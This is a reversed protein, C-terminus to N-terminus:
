KKSKPKEPKAPKKSSGSSAPSNRGGPVVVGQEAMFQQKKVQLQQPTLGQKSYFKEWYDWKEQPTKAAWTSKSDDNGGKLVDKHNNSSVKAKKADHMLMTFADVWVHAGKRRGAKGDVKLELVSSSKGDRYALCWEDGKRGPYVKTVKILKAFGQPDNPKREAQKDNDWWCFLWKANKSKAPTEDDSDDPVPMNVVKFYKEKPGGLGGGGKKFLDGTCVKALVNMKALGTLNKTGEPVVDCVAEYLQPQQMEDLGELIPDEQEGDVGCVRFRVEIDGQPARHLLLPYKVGRDKCKPNDLIKKQVDLDFEGVLTDSLVGTQFVQIKCQHAGQPVDMSVTQNFLGDATKRSKFVEFWFGVSVYYEAKKLSKKALNGSIAVVTVLVTFGDFTDYTLKHRLLKKVGPIRRINLTKGDCYGFKWLVCYAAFGIVAFFIYDGGPFFCFPNVQAAAAQEVFSSQVDLDAYPEDVARASL